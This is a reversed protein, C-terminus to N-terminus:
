SLFEILALILGMGANLWTTFISKSLMVKSYMCHKLDVWIPSSIIRILYLNLASIIEEITQVDIGSSVVTAGQTTSVMGAVLHSHYRKSSILYVRGYYRGASPCHQWFDRCWYFYLIFIPGWVRSGAIMGTQWKVYWLM